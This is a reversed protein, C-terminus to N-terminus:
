DDSQMGTIEHRLAAKHQALKVGDNQLARRGTGRQRQGHQQRGDDPVNDGSHGICHLKLTTYMISSSLRYEILLCVHYDNPMELSNFFVRYVCMYKRGGVHIYNRNTNLQESNSNSAVWCNHVNYLVGDIEAAAIPNISTRVTMLYALERM